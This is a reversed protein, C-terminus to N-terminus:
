GLGLMWGVQEARAAASRMQGMLVARRSPHPWANVREDDDYTRGCFCPGADMVSGPDNGDCTRMM